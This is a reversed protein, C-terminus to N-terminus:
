VHARGIEWDEPVRGEDIQDLLRDRLANCRATVIRRQTETPTDKPGKKRTFIHFIKSHSVYICPRGQYVSRHCSVAITDAEMALSDDQKYGLNAALEVWHNGLLRMCGAVSMDSSKEEMDRIDEEPGGVCDGAYEYLPCPGKPILDQAKPVPYEVTRKAM